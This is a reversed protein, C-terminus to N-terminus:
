FTGGTIATIPEATNDIKTWGGNTFVAWDKPNWDGQGDIVTAGATSVVYYHGETGSGSVLTPTNTAANWTGQFVLGSIAVAPLNAVPLKQGADLPAVGNAAGIQSAQIAGALKTADGLCVVTTLDDALAYMKGDKSNILLVGDAPSGEFAFDSPVPVRGPVRSVKLQFDVLTSM